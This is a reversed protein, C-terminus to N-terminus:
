RDKLSQGVGWFQLSDYRVTPTLKNVSSESFNRQINELAKSQHTITYWDNSREKGLFFHIDVIKCSFYYIHLCKRLSGAKSFVYGLCSCYLFRM